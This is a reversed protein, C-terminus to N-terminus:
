RAQLGYEVIPDSANSRFIRVWYSGKRLRGVEVALRGDKAYVKPKAAEAGAGDVIKASYSEAGAAADIDLLLTAARGAEVQAPAEPGRMARMEVLMPAGAERGRQDAVFLVGAMAAAAM